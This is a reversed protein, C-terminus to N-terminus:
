RPHTRGGLPQLLATAQVPSDSRGPEITLVEFDSAALRSFCARTTWASMYNSGELANNWVVYADDKLRPMVGEPAWAQAYDEDHFTVVALGRPKLLRAIEALWASARDQTLHTLVSHAYVLDFAADAFALPPDLRNQVYRGPLHRSCWDVSRANLDVGSFRGGAEVVRPALWRAIRGCGCGFDLVDLGDGISLGAGEALSSFREADLRGQESFWAESAGGSVSVILERPPMPRGDDVAPEVTRALRRELARYYPGILGTRELGHRVIRRLSAVKM